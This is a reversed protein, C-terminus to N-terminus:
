PQYAAHTTMAIPNGTEPNNENLPQNEVRGHLLHILSAVADAEFQNWQSSRGEPYVFCTMPYDPDLFASWATTWYLSTPWNPPQAAPLPVLLHLRMDPSFSNLGARYKLKIFLLCSSLIGRSFLAGMQQWPASLSFPTLWM